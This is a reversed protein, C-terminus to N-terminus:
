NAPSADHLQNPPTRGYKRRYALPTMGTQRCFQKTFYSQDCFGARLAIQSVSKDSSVLMERAANLRVRLLFQQPALQFIAKFRRDFQSISLPILGALRRFDIRENYHQFLHDLVREMQRYPALLTGAKEVDVNVAALGVVSGGDGLLPVKSTLYWRLKGRSDPSLWSQHRVPQGTVLIRHDDDEFQDAMDRPCFDYVTKGVLEAPETAGRLRAMAHNVLVYQGGPNKVSFYTNPLYEFLQGLQWPPTLKKFFERQFRLPDM